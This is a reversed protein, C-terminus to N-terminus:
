DLHESYNHSSQLPHHKAFLVRELPALRPDRFFLRRKGQRAALFLADSAAAAPVQAQRRLDALEARERAVGVGLAELRALMEEFQVLTRELPALRALRGWYPPGGPETPRDNVLPSLYDKADMRSWTDRERLFAYTVAGAWTPEPLESRPLTMEPQAPRLQGAARKLAAVTRWTQGDASLRVEAELIVGSVDWPHAASKELIFPKGAEPQIGFTIDFLNITAEIFPNIYEAKM